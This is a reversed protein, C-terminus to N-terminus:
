LWREVLRYRHSRSRESLINTAENWKYLNLRAEDSQCYQIPIYPEKEYKPGQLLVM